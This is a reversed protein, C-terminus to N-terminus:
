PENKNECLVMNICVYGGLRQADFTQREIGLAVLQRLRQYIRRTSVTSSVDAFSPLRVCTPSSQKAGELLSDADVGSLRGGNAEGLGSWSSLM